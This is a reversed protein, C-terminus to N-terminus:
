HANTGSLHRKWFIHSKNQTRRTKHTQTHSKNQKHTLNQNLGGLKHVRWRAGLPRPHCRRLPPETYKIIKENLHKVKRNIKIKLKWVFEIKKMEFVFISFLHTVLERGQRDRPGRVKGRHREINHRINDHRHAPEFLVRVGRKGLPSRSNNRGTSGIGNHYFYIKWKKWIHTQSKTHTHTHTM